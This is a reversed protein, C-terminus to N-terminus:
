GASPANWEMAGGPLFYLILMRGGSVEPVHHSGPGVVVWGEPRGCFRAGPTEAFCLSVEGHPHTHALAPGAMDVADISLDFTEPSPKWLRGFRVADSARKPTLWGADRASRLLGGLAERRPAPWAVDLAQEAAPPDSLDLAAIDRLVPQLASLIEERTM